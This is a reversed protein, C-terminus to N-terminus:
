PLGAARRPRPPMTVKLKDAIAAIVTGQWDQERELATIRKEQDVDRQYLEVHPGTLAHQQVLQDSYKEASHQAQDVEHQTAAGQVGVVVGGAATVTLVVIGFIVKLAIGAGAARQLVEVPGSAQSAAREAAAAPLDPMHGRPDTGNGPVM